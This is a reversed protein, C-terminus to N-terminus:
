TYECLSKFTMSCPMDFMNRGMALCNINTNGVYPRDSQWFVDLRVAEQNSDWVWNGETQTDTAGIWYSGGEEQILQTATDYERQTRIEALFAGM